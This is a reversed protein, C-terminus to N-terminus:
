APHVTVAKWGVTERMPPEEGLDMLRTRAARQDLQPAGSRDSVKVRYGDGAYTGARTNALMASLLEKRKEWASSERRAQALERGIRAADADTRVQAAQASIGPGAGPWCRSAYPCGDCVVDLAPGRHADRPAWDPDQAWRKLDRLRAALLRILDDDFPYLRTSTEGTIRSVYVIAIHDVDHGQQRLAAAYGCVQVLHARSPEEPPDQYGLTKVDILLGGAVALTHLDYSGPVELGELRLAVPEEIWTVEHGLADALAPLLWDHLATGLHAARHERGSVDDSPEIGALQYAARRTCGGLGSMSLTRPDHQNADTAARFAEALANDILSAVERTRSM